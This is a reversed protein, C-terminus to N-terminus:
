KNIIVPFSGAQELDVFAHMYPMWYPSEEKEAPYKLRSRRVTVAVSTISLKKNPQPWFLWPRNPPEAPRKPRPRWGIEKM